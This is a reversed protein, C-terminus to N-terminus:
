HYKILNTLAQHLTNKFNEFDCKKLTHNRIKEHTINRINNKISLFDIDDKEKYLIHAFQNLTNKPYMWEQLMTIGGCAAIEQAVMGQTERHTPFFIDTKRYYKAIENYPLYKATQANTKTIEPSLRNLEIGKSTHYFVRLPINSKRISDFIKNIANISIERENENQYKFHDIYITLKDDNYKEPYLEDTIIFKPLYVYHDYLKTKSPLFYFYLNEFNTRPDMANDGMDILKNCYPLLKQPDLSKKVISRIGVLIIVDYKKQPYGEIMDVDFQDEFYSLAKSFANMTVKVWPGYTFHTLCIKIM